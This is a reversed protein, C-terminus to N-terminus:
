NYVVLLIIPHYIIDIKYSFLHGTEYPNKQNHRVTCPFIVSKANNTKEKRERYHKGKDSINKQLKFNLSYEHKKLFINNLNHVKKKM